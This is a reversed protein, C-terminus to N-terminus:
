FRPTVNRLSERSGCNTVGPAIFGRSYLAPQSRFPPRHIHPIPPFRKIFTQIELDATDRVAVEVAITCSSDGAEVSYVAASYGKMM